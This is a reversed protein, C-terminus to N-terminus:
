DVQAMDVESLCAAAWPSASLDLRRAPSLLRSAFGGNRSLQFLGSPLNGSRTSETPPRGVTKEPVAVTSDAKEIIPRSFSIYLLARVSKESSTEKM